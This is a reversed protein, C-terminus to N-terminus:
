RRSRSRRGAPLPQLYALCMATLEDALRDLSPRYRLGAESGFMMLWAATSFIARYAFPVAEKPKTVGLEDARELLMSTFLEEALAITANGREHLSEDVAARLMFQGMVAGHDVMQRALFRVASEILESVPRRPGARLEEYYSRLEDDIEDLVEGQVALVLGDKDVFREYVSGVSVGAVTSINAVTLGQWGEAALVQRAATAIKRQTTRSRDQQAPRGGSLTM